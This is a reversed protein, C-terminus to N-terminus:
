KHENKRENERAVVQEFRVIEPLNEYGADLVTVKLCRTTQWIYTIKGHWLRDRRGPAADPLTYSIEQGITFDTITAM